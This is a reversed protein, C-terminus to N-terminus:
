SPRLTAAFALGGITGAGGMLGIAAIVDWADISISFSFLGWPLAGVAFGGIASRLWTLAWRRRLLIYIPIGMFLAHLFAIPTGFVLATALGAPAPAAPAMAVFFVGLTSAAAVAAVLAAGIVRGQSPADEAM